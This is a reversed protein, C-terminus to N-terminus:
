SRDDSSIGRKDLARNVAIDIYEEIWKREEESPIASQPTEGRLSASAIDVARELEEQSPNKSTDIFCPTDTRGLLFDISVAFYDALQLLKELPPNRSGTEWTQVSQQSWGFIEALQAQTLGKAIRLEAIRNYKRM